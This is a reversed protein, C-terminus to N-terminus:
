QMRSYNLIYTVCQRRSICQCLKDDPRLDIDDADYRHMSFHQLYQRTSPLIGSWHVTKIIIKKVRFATIFSHGHHTSHLIFTMPRGSLCLRDSIREKKPNKKTTKKDDKWEYNKYAKGM